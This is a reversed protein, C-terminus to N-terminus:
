CLGTKVEWFATKEQNTIESHASLFCEDLFRSKQDTPSSNKIETIRLRQTSHNPRLGKCNYLFYSGIRTVNSLGSLDISTLTTCGDLFRDGVETVCSVASLDLRTLSGSLILAPCSSQLLGLFGEQRQQVLLCQQHM